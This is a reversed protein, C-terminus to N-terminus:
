EGGGMWAQPDVLDCSQGWWDSNSVCFMGYKDYIGADAREERPLCSKYGENNAYLGTDDQPVLVNLVAFQGGGFEILIRFTAKREGNKTTEVIVGGPECESRRPVGEFSAVNLRMRGGGGTFAWMKERQVRPTGKPIVIETKGETRTMGVTGRGILTIEKVRSRDVIIGVSSNPALSFTQLVVGFDRWSAERTDLVSEGEICFEAVEYSMNNRMAQGVGVLPFQVREFAM